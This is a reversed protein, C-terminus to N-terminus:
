AAGPLNRATDPRGAPGSVRDDDREYRCREPFAARIYEGVPQRAFGKDSTSVFTRDRWGDRAKANRVKVGRYGALNGHLTLIANTGNREALRCAELMHESVIVQPVHVADFCLPDAYGMSRLLRGAREISRGYSGLSRRGTDAMIQPLAEAVTGVNMVPLEDLPDMVFVDDWCLIWRDWRRCAAQVGRRINRQKKGRVQQTRLHQVDASVWPPKYGAIAAGDHPLHAAVSRMSYRLEDHGDDGERVVWCVPLM